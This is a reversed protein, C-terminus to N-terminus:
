HIMHFLPFLGGRKLARHKQDKDDLAMALLCQKSPINNQRQFQENTYNIYEQYVEELQNLKEVVWDDVLIKNKM